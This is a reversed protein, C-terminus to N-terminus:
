GPLPSPAGFSVHCRIGACGAHGGPARDRNNAASSRRFALMCGAKRHARIFKGIEPWEPVLGRKEDKSEEVRGRRNRKRLGLIARERFFFDVAWCQDARDRRAQRVRSLGPRYGAPPAKPGTARPPRAQQAGPDYRDLPRLATRLMAMSRWRAASTPCATRSRTALTRSFCASSPPSADM